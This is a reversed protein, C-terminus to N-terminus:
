VLGFFYYQAGVLSSMKCAWWFGFVHLLTPYRHRPRPLRLRDPPEGRGPVPRRVEPVAQHAGGDADGRPALRRRSEDSQSARARAPTRGCGHPSSPSLWLAAAAASPALQDPATRASLFGHRRALIIHVLVVFSHGPWHGGCRGSINSHFFDVEGGGIKM